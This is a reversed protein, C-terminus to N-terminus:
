KAEVNVHQEATTGDDYMLCLDVAVVAGRSDAYCRAVEVETVIKVEDGERVSAHECAVAQGYAAQSSRSIRVVPVM